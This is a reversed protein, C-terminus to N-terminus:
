QGETLFALRTPMRYVSQWNWSLGTYIARWGANDTNKSLWELNARVNRSYDAMQQKHDEIFLLAGSIMVVTVLLLTVPFRLSLFGQLIEKRLIHLIM